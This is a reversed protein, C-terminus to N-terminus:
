NKVSLVVMREFKDSLVKQTRTGAFLANLRRVDGPRVVCLVKERPGFFARLQDDQWLVEVPHPSWFPNARSDMVAVPNGSHFNVGRAYLKSAVVTQGQLGNAAVVAATDADTFGAVASAPLTLITAIVVGLFGATNLVVVPALRRMLLLAGCAVHVVGFAAVVLLTPRIEAALPGRVLFPVAALGAGFLFFLSAAAVTRKRAGELADLSLALAVALAPFLPLIYSALKSHAIAFIAYVALFWAALFLSLDRNRKWGAGLYALLPTWPFMGIVIVAPYFAQNDFNAHEAALIRHWNDHVLFEYTFVRGHVLTAYLYWPAAVAVFALWWPHILFARLESRRRTALLFGVIALLEAIIGVPGKTLVALAAAIAFLYLRSERREVLWLYFGWMSVVILSTFVMDTLLAISQGLCVLATALIAAGLAATREPMVRRGLRWTALAGLMGFVAPILRAAWPKVGFLAFSAMLCWYALPPKEFQPHGFLLPTLLSKHQLMERATQAYFVEDPDSLPLANLGALYAIGALAVLALFVTPRRPLASPLAPDGDSAPLPEAM